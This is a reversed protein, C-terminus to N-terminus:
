QASPESAVDLLLQPRHEWNPMGFMGIGHYAEELDISDNQFADDDDVQLRFAVVGSEAARKVYPTVDISKKGESDFSLGTDAFDEDNFLAKATADTGLDQKEAFYIRLPKPDGMKGHIFFDLTANSIQAATHGQLNFFLVIRHLGLPAEGQVGVPMGEAPDVRFQHDARGDFPQKDMLRYAAVESGGNLEADITVPDAFAVSASMLM